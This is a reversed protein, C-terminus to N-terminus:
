LGQKAMKTALEQIAALYTVDTVTGLDLSAASLGLTNRYLAFSDM